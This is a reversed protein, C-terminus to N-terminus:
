DTSILLERIEDRLDAFRDHYVAMAWPEMLYKYFDTILGEKFRSALNNLMKEHVGYLCVFNEKSFT